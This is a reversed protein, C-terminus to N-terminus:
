SKGKAADDATKAIRLRNEAHALVAAWAARESRMASQRETLSTPAESRYVGVMADIGALLHATSAAVADPSSAIAALTELPAGMATM